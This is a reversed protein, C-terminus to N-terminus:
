PIKIFWRIHRAVEEFGEAAYLCNAAENNTLCDLHVHLAGLQKFHNLMGRLMERGLGKGQHEHGVALLDIFGLRHQADYTGTAAAVVQGDQEGVLVIQTRFVHAFRSKWRVRWDRGNLPGFQEDVRRFWTIPAFSEVVLDELKQYEAPDARRFKLSM